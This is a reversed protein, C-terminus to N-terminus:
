SKLGTEMWGNNAKVKVKGAATPRDGRHCDLSLNPNLPADVRTKEVSGDLQGDRPPEKKQALALLGGSKITIEKKKSERGQETGKVKKWKRKGM